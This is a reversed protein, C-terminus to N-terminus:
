PAAGSPVAIAVAICEQIAEWDRETLHGVQSRIDQQDMTVLYARFASPLNLGSASWDQLIYDTPATAAPTNTTLLGVIMDPRHAHYVATSIIVAPRRKVGQAGPFDVTVVDGADPM